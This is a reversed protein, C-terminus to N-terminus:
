AKWPSERAARNLWRLEEDRDMSSSEEQRQANAQRLWWEEEERSLPNKFNQIGAAM